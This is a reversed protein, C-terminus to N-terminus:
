AAQMPRQESRRLYDDLHNQGIQVKSAIRFCGLQNAKLLRHVTIESCGLFKAAERKSYFRKEMTAQEM